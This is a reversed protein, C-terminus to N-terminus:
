MIWIMSVIGHRREMTIIGTSVANVIDAKERQAAFYMAELTRLDLWDDSDCFMIYEGKAYKLGLNRAGGAGLNKPTKCYMIRSDQQMYKSIMTEINGLSCDNVVIVEINKLTQNKVSNIMKDFYDETNYVPTIVSVAVKSIDM